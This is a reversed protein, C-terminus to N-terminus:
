NNKFKGVPSESYRIIMVVGVGGHFNKSLDATTNQEFPSYSGPPLPVPTKSFPQKILFTWGVGKLDWPPLAEILSM